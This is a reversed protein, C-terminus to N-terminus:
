FNEFQCYQGNFRLNVTGIPGNRQKGIIIEAVGIDKSSKNYVEDRYIFLILDADQEIAGSDRLDSMVPRKESRGELSRNLQSLLIIPINLEKALSKISRSIESIENVKGEKFGPIKMLQLYDIVILGLKGHERAVRRARTRVEFPSLSGSDDIIIKQSKMQNVAVSLCEWDGDGLQGTRIKQMDINGVSSLVRMWLQEIPMEMSFILVTDTSKVAFNKSVNLAFNTKGMSPRAAVIILDSPQLGATLNDLYDYGTPIGTVPSGSDYLFEIRDLTRSLGEETGVLERKQSNRGESLIFIKNEADDILDKVSIETNKANGFIELGSKLMQRRTSYDKVTQAYAVANAACATNKALEALYPFLDTEGPLNESLTIIDVSISKHHLKLIANFIIKHSENHFDEESLLQSIADIVDNDLLIAGLVNQEVLDSHLLADANNTRM